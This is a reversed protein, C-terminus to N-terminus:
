PSFNNAGRRGRMRVNLKFCLLNFRTFGCNYHMIYKDILCNEVDIQSCRLQEFCLLRSSINIQLM